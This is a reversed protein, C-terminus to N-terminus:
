KILHKELYNFILTELEAGKSGAFIDTGHGSGEPYIVLERKMKYDGSNDILWGVDAASPEDGESAALLGFGTYNNINSTDLGRYNRAPSLLIITQISPDKVAANIAANAGISAGIVGIPLDPYQEKIYSSAAIVDEPLFRFDNESFSRWDGASKGHGRLDISLTFYNRNLAKEIFPGFDSKNKGLMHVLILVGRPKGVPKQLESDILIGDSTQLTIRGTEFKSTEKLFVKPRGCAALLFFCIILVSAYRLSM